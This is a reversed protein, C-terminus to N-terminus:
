LGAPDVPSKITLHNFNQYSFACSVNDGGTSGGTTNVSLLKNSSGLDFTTGDDLRIFIPQNTLNVGDGLANIQDEKPVTVTITCGVTVPINAYRFYPRKRGLELIDTRNLNASITVESMHTLFASGQDLNYGSGNTVSINPLNTPWISGSGMNVNQRREVAGFTPVDTNNFNGLFAFGSSRWVKDNGVLTVSETLNGNTPLTYNLSNIYLGSHYAQTQPSGSASSNTDLYAAIFGDCRINSRVFLTPDTSNPTAAHYLLVNGDLVKSASIEINPVEEVIAYVESQGLEAVPQINFSTNSTLTQLGHIPIGSASCYAGLYFGRLPYNLRNSTAM